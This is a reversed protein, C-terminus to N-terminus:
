QCSDLGRPCPFSTVYLVGQPPQSTGTSGYKWPFSSLGFRETLNGKQLGLSSWDHMWVDRLELLHSYAYVDAIVESDTGYRQFIPDNLDYATTTHPTSPCLGNMIEWADDVGDGDRDFSGGRVTAITRRIGSADRFYTKYTWQHGREHFLIWLFAHIAYLNISDAYSILPLTQNGCRNDTVAFLPSTRTLYNRPSNSIYITDTSPQYCGARNFLGCPNTNTYRVDNPAGFIKWYYYFWNPVRNTAFAPNRNGLANFFVEFRAVGLSVGQTSNPSEPVRVEAQHRGFWNFSANPNYDPLLPQSFRLTRGVFFRGYESSEPNYYDWASWINGSGFPFTSHWTLRNFLNSRLITLTNPWLTSNNDFLQRPEAVVQIGVIANLDVGSATESFVLENEGLEPFGLPDLRGQIPLGPQFPDNGPFRCMSLLGTAVSSWVALNHAGTLSVQNLEVATNISSLAVGRLRNPTSAMPLHATEVSWAFGGSQMWSITFSDAVGDQRNQNTASRAFESTITPPPADSPVQVSSCDGELSPKVSDFWVRTLQNFNANWESQYLAMRALNRQIAFKLFPYSARGQQIQPHQEQIDPYFSLIETPFYNRYTLYFQTHAVSRSYGTRGGLVSGQYIWLSCPQESLIRFQGPFVQYFPDNNATNFTVGCLYTEPSACFFFNTKVDLSFIRGYDRTSRNIVGISVDELNEELNWQAFGAFVFSVIGLFSVFLKRWFSQSIVNTWFLSKNMQRLTGLLLPKPRRARAVLTACGNRDTGRVCALIGTGCKTSPCSARAALPDKPCDRVPKLNKNPTRTTQTTKMRLFELRIFVKQLRTLDICEKSISHDSENSFREIRNLFLVTGTAKALRAKPM